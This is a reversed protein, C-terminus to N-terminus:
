ADVAPGVASPSADLGLSVAVEAACRRGSFLAGQISATDRHDGCVFRGDALAVSRKPSFPPSQGPQGHPIRYTALHEWRDVAGGWWGRLQTRAIRELDGDAAGPLAATVLHRGPPAYSPAVNSMVAVNLVPGRGTGDLIVCRTDSPAEDAAFHVCGAAKSAVPPLGLLDVAAPGETAVVVACAAIEHGDDTRVSSPSTSAVRRGLEVTGAPLRAALQDSIAGMGAAPVASDGDSLMRFIVDFARRSDSLGPDLQIGGVLARFFRDVITDSFGAETLAEATTVDDGRLLQAPHVRRLRARLLAIRAKDFPGGIPAAVTSAVTLPRRFPDSVTSGRSDRWVLAGPDFARLDLADLDFQRHMEPYATLTVQFGRDLTFGDIRDSRVRGGVGDAAELVRVAVGADRLAVACSLGALGAGVVVVPDDSM